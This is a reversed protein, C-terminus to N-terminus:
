MLDASIQSRAEKNLSEATPPLFYKLIFESIISTDNKHQMIKVLGPELDDLSTRDDTIKFLYM